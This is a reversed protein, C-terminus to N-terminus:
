KLDIAGDWLISDVDRRTFPSYKGQQRANCRLIGSKTDYLLYLLEGSQLREGTTFFEKGVLLIFQGDKSWVFRETGPPRGEDPSSFLLSNIYRIKVLLFRKPTTASCEELIVVFNRDMRGDDKEILLVRTKGDPSVSSATITENRACGIPVIFFALLVM